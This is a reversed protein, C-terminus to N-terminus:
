IRFLHDIQPIKTKYLLFQYTKELIDIATIFYYYYYYDRGTLGGVQKRYILMIHRMIAM